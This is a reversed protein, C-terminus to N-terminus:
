LNGLEQRLIEWPFFGLREADEFEELMDKLVEIKMQTGYLDPGGEYMGIRIKLWEKIGQEVDYKIKDSHHEAM